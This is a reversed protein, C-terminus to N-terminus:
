SSPVKAILEEILLFQTLQKLKEQKFSSYQPFVMLRALYRNILFGEIAGWTTFIICPGYLLQRATTNQLFTTRLFKAFGTASDGKLYLQLSLDAVKNLFLSQCLYKGTFKAFNRPVGKWLSCRRHISGAVLAIWSSMITAEKLFAKKNYYILIFLINSLYVFLRCFNFAQM